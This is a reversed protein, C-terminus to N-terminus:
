GKNSLDSELLEKPRKSLGRHEVGKEYRMEDDGSECANAGRGLAVWMPDGTANCATERSDNDVMQGNQGRRDLPRPGVVYPLECAEVGGADEEGIEKPCGKFKM